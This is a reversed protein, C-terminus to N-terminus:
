AEIRVPVPVDSPLDFVLVGSAVLGYLRRGDLSSQIQRVGALAPDRLQRLLSGDATTHLVRANASDALYLGGARDPAMSIISASRGDPPRVEFALESGTANFTCLTGDEMRALTRDHLGVVQVV